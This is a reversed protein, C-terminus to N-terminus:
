AAMSVNELIQVAGQGDVLAVDIRMEVFAGGHQGAYVEAARMIRHLRAWNVRQAAHDFTKGAKVEVFVLRAGERVDRRARVGKHAFRLMSHVQFLYFFIQLRLM